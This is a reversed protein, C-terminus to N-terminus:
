EPFSPLLLVRVCRKLAETEKEARIRAEEAQDTVTMTLPEFDCGHEWMNVKRGSPIQFHMSPIMCRDHLPQICRTRAHLELM